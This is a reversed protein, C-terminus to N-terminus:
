SERRLYKLAIAVRDELADTKPNTLEYEAHAIAKSLRINEIDRWDESEIPISRREAETLLADRFACYVEIVQRHDDRAALHHYQEVVNLARRLRVETAALARDAADRQGHAEDMLSEYQGHDVAYYRALYEMRELEALAKSLAADREDVADQDSM